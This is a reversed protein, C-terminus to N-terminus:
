EIIPVVPDATRIDIFTYGYSRLIESLELLTGALATTPTKITIPFSNRRSMPVPYSDIADPFLEYPVPSGNISIIGNDDLTIVFRSAMDARPVQSYFEEYEAQTVVNATNGQPAVSQVAVSNEPSLKQLEEQAQKAALAAKEAENRAEEQAKEQAANFIPVYDNLASYSVVVVFVLVVQVIVDLFPIVCNNIGIKTFRRRIKM